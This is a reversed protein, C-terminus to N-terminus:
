AAPRDSAQHAEGLPIEKDQGGPGAAAEGDLIPLFHEEQGGAEPSELGFLALHPNRLFM